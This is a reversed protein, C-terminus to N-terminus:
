KKIFRGTIELKISDPDFKMSSILQRVANATPADITIERVTGKDRDIVHAIDVKHEDDMTCAIYGDLIGIHHILGVEMLTSLIRYVSVVDIRGGANVIKEHVGYASLAVDSDALGRIVQIRPMTIRYGHRRLVEICRDEYARATKSNAQLM